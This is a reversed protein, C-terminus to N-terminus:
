SRGGRMLLVPQMSQDRAGGGGFRCVHLLQHRHCRDRLCTGNNGYHFMAGETVARM